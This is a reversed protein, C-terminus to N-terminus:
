RGDYIPLVQKQVKWVGPCKRCYAMGVYQTGDWHFSLPSLNQWEHQRFIRHKIWQWM